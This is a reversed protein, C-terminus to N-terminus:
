NRQDTPPETTATLYFTAANDFANEVTTTWDGNPLITDEYDDHSSRWLAFDFASESGDYRLRCLSQIEDGPLRADLYAFGGRFRVAVGDLAPWHETVHRTIRGELDGRTSEPMRPM